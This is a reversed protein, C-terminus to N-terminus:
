IRICLTDIWQSKYGDEEASRLKFSDPVGRIHFYSELDDLFHVINQKYPDTFKPLCIDKSVDNMFQSTGQGAVRVNVENNCINRADCQSPFVEVRAAHSRDCQGECRGASHRSGDTGMNCSSLGTQVRGEAGNIQNDASPLVVTGTAAAVKEELIHLRDGIKGLESSNDRSATDLREGIVSLYEAIMDNRIEILENRLM